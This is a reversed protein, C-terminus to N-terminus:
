GPLGASATGAGSVEANPTMGFKAMLKARWEENQMNIWDAASDWTRPEEPTWSCDCGPAFYLDEGHVTYGVTAGCCGCDHHPIWTLGAAKVAEKVQQGTVM